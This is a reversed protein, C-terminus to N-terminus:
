GSPYAFGVYRCTDIRRPGASDVKRRMFRHNIIFRHNISTSTASAYVASGVSLTAPKHCKGFSYSIAIRVFARRLHTSDHICRKHIGSNRSPYEAFKV